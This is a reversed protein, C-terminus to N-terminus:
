RGKEKEKRELYEKLMLVYSTREWPTMQELYEGDWGHHHIMAFQTKMWNVLNDHTM